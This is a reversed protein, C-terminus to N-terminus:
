TRPENGFCLRSSREWLPAAGCFRLAAPDALAAAGSVLGLQVNYRNWQQGGPHLLGGLICVGELREIAAFHELARLANPGFPVVWAKPLMALQVALNARRAHAHRGQFSAASKARHAAEDLSGGAALSARFSLLAELKQKKGPSGTLRREVKGGATDSGSM